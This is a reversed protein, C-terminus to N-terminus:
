RFSGTIIKEAFDILCPDRLIGVVYHGSNHAVLYFSYKGVMKDGLNSIRNEVSYSIFISEMLITVSFM